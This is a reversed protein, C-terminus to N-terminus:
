HVMSRVNSPSTTLTLILIHEDCSRLVVRHHAGSMAQELVGLQSSSALSIFSCQLKGLVEGVLKVLCEDAALFM